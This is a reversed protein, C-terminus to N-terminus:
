AHRVGIATYGGDVFLTQGNVYGAQEGALFCAADAVDDVEGLRGAPILDLYAERGEDSLAQLMLPTGVPGPGIANATIGLPALELAMQRTLGIVAAKSTGYSTRGLAARQGAISAINIIRGYGKKAMERAAYQGCFFVGDVNLRMTDRFDDISTELFPAMKATGASSVLIDLQGFEAVSRAVMQRVQDPDTVDVRVAIAKGTNGGIETATAIATDEVIDACVVLAGEKAFRLAIGRGLGS